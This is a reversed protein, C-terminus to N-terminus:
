SEKKDRGLLKNISNMAAEQADKMMKLLPRVENETKLEATRKELQDALNRRGVLEKLSAVSDTREDDLNRQAARTLEKLSPADDAEKVEAVRNRAAALAAEGEAQIAAKQEARRQEFRAIEEPSVLEAEADAAAASELDHPSEAKRAEEEAPTHGREAYAM